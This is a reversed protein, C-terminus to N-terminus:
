AKGKEDTEEMALRAASVVAVADIGCVRRLTEVDGHTVVGSGLNLLRAFRLPVRSQALCALLAHGMCGHASVEELVIVRGTKRVSQATVPFDDFDLRNLKIVQSSIGDAELTRAAELAQNIMIGHTVITIDAGERLIAEAHASTDRTHEGEGGRPYRVAAPGKTEFALRLMSRMEAYNSPAYITMGPTQRLLGLDFSGQHTEGDAGVLGARDVALVVPVHGLGIDHVLMDYSRQLFSSYVAFVPKLGQAAMGAAMAAAHEEAIGVDFFREPWRGSFWGLGTGDAMAATIAVIREDQAALRSLEQGFVESFGGDHPLSVGHAPDFPGVGHYAEPNAEAPAYGRGKTTTVHVLVPIALERAYSIVRTLTKIDHGDIPGLYYFGMDEFITDPLVIDKIWEKVGHILKHVGKLRGITKRYLRKVALYSPRVRQRALLSSVAGVNSNISMGNDNLIIVISEGSAGCDALGEYALGGTLAGDGIVAAVAYDAGALTRARAMGLAVSISNSAHGSICADDSSECPKLFGSLGGFCRLTDFQELRGTLMKHAYCQHGVDFVVRDRSTDYVRHLAVTLEVSGLSSALHGGNKAVADLIAGRLETCLADLQSKDLKKVDSSSHIQSLLDM